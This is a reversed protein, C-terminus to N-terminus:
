IARCITFAPQTCAAFTAGNGWKWIKGELLFFKRWYRLNCGLALIFNCTAFTEAQLEQVYYTAVKNNSFLVLLTLNEVNQMM